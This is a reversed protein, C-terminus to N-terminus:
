AARARKKRAPKERFGDCAVGNVVKQGLHDIDMALRDVRSSFFLHAVYAPIAVTLGAATTLLAQSIGNALLEPKGMADASAIANFARIMGLVTGLLGLLPSITAIGNFLRLYRRLSNAVREGGDLIAQEVEVSPRDWKIVGAAFVEAVPSRDERCRALAERRDLQGEQIQHIFRRVFPRPIVRGRRLSIAREFAFVFLLFSCVGLPVLMVGGQRVTNIMGSVSLNRGAVPGTSGPVSPTDVPGSEAAVPASTTLVNDGAPVQGWSSGPLFGLGCVALAALVLALPLSQKVGRLVAKRPGEDSRTLHNWM